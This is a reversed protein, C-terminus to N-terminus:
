RINEAIRRVIDWSNYDKECKGVMFRPDTLDIRGRNKRCYDVFRQSENGWSLNQKQYAKMRSKLRKVINGVWKFHHVQIYHEAPPCPIGNEARHHGIDLVVRGKAATVKRPNGHLIPFTIFGGLPFQEWLDNSVAIEPFKGDSAIRDVFCGRMYDYKRESCEKIISNVDAPYIQFEDQDALIFWDEPYKRMSDRIIAKKVNPWGGISISEIKAGFKTVIERAEAQVPDGKNALHLNILFSTIGLDRYHSLMYPLQGVYAGIVTILHIQM